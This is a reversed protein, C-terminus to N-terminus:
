YASIRVREFDDLDEDVLLGDPIFPDVLGMFASSAADVQDDAVGRPFLRLENVFAGEWGGPLLCVNGARQQASLGTARVEKSGSVTRTMVPYGRLMRTLQLAQDKGAQGPDQPLEIVTGPPDSAAALLIERRVDDPAWQGRIVDKIVIREDPMLGMLVGVTWDGGDATAALDWGRVWRVENIPCPLEDLHTWKDEPFLGGTPSRPTQQFQAMWIQPGLALSVERQRQLITDLDYREPWLPEGMARGLPDTDPDDCLAPLRLETWNDGDERLLFGTLDDEHWRACIIIVAGGPEIRSVMTGTWWEQVKQRIRPSMADEFNKFPDDIIMLDAGRGIPSGGVGVTLMGGSHGDIDWRNAASSARSVTVGFDTPGYETLIQRAFRGHAAAFDAEHTALIVRRDPYRGLYWAPLWRSAFESKGHRVSVSLILRGGTAITDLVAQEILDLHRARRWVGRSRTAAFAAPTAVDAPLPPPYLRDLIREALAM